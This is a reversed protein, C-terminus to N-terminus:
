PLHGPKFVPAAEDEADDLPMDVVLAAAAAAMALFAAVSTKWEPAINLGVVPAMTDAYAMWDIPRDAM